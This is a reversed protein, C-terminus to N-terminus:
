MPYFLIHIRLLFQQAIQDYHSIQKQKLELLRERNNYLHWFPAKATKYKKKVTKNLNLLNDLQDINMNQMKLNRDRKTSQLKFEDLERSAFIADQEEQRKKNYDEDEFLYLDTTTTNVINLDLLISMKKKANEEAKLFFEETEKEAKDLLNEIDEDKFDDGTKLIASAGYQIMEKMQEKSFNESSKSRGQQIVLSDLKLRMAQREIIKEEITNETIFRYIYCKKTQGIRHIRDIAQLDVQPNWDSDFLIVNNATMLNIGLGGARTSLLFCNIESDKKTFDAIQNEREELTTNGDIRCFKLNKYTLYDELIDLVRTM